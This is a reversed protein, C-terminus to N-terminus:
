ELIRYNKYRGLARIGKNKPQIVQQMQIPPSINELQFDSFVVEMKQQVLNNNLGEIQSFDYIAIIRYILGTDVDYEMEFRMLSPSEAKFRIGNHGETSLFTEGILQFEEILNIFTKWDFTPMNAGGEKHWQIAKQQHDILIYQDQKQIIEIDEFSFYSQNKTIWAKIASQQNPQSAQITEYFLYNAQYAIEKKNLFDGLVKQYTAVLNEQGMLGFYSGLSLLM